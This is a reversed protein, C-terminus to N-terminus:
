GTILHKMAKVWVGAGSDSDYFTTHVYNDSCYCDAMGNTGDKLYPAINLFTAGYEPALGMLHMNLTDVRDNTLMGTQGDTYIPTASEIFIRVGPCSNQIRGLVDRWNAITDEMGMGVMDNVGLMIFLKNAGSAAVLDEIHGYSVGNYTLSMTNGSAHYISYGREYVIEADGLAGSGSAYISLGETLSDGIFLADDFFSSDVNFSTPPAMVPDSPDGSPVWGDPDEPEPIDQTEETTEETTEEATEETAETTEETAAETTPATTPETTPETTPFACTVVCQAKEGDYEATVTATGEGHCIVLGNEFTAVAENDSSFTVDGTKVTGNYLRFTEGEAKMDLMSLRLRIRQEEVPPVTVEATPETTSGPMTTGEASPETTVDAQESACGQLLSLLMLVSLCLCILKKM